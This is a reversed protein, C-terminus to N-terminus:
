RLICICRLHDGMSAHGGYSLLNACGCDLKEGFVIDTEYAVRCDRREESGNCRQREDVAAGKGGESGGALSRARMEM